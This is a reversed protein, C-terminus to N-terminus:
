QYNKLPLLNNTHTHTHTHLTNLIFIKFIYSISVLARLVSTLFGTLSLKSMM